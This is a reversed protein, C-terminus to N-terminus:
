GTYSLLETSLFFDIVNNQSIVTIKTTQVELARAEVATV